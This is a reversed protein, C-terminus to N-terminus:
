IYEKILTQSYDSITFHPFLFTDGQL